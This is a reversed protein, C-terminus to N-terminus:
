QKAALAGLCLRVQVPQESTGEASAGWGWSEVVTHTQNFRELLAEQVPDLYGPMIVLWVRDSAYVETPHITQGDFLEYIPPALWLEQGANVLAGAKSGEYYLAPLYSADQLHLILDTSKAREAVTEVAEDVPPKAPDPRLHFLVAGVVMLLCLGAGLYPAPSQRLRDTSYRSLVILLSPTVVAFSREVYVPNVLLSIGLVLVVPAFTTLVLLTEAERKWTRHSVIGVALLGLVLFLGAAVLWVPLTHGFLLYHLSRLPELPSPAVRWRAAGLFEAAESALQTLQPLFALAILTDAILLSPVIRRHRQWYVLVWLHLALVVLAVYYHVYLGLTTLIIYPWWSASRNRRLRITRLFAWIVGASLAIALGYMRAEQAYYIQFPSVAMGVAALYGTQPDFADRALRAVLAVALISCWASPFRLVFESDGVGRWLHLLYYYGPPHSSGAANALVEQTSLAAIAGSLAEDFWLSRKGLGPFRALTAILLLGV